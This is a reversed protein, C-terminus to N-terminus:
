AVPKSEQGVFLEAELWEVLQQAFAVFPLKRYHKDSSRNLSIRCLSKAESM